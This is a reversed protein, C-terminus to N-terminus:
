NRGPPRLYVVERKHILSDTIWGALAGWAAGLVVRAVDAPLGCDGSPSCQADRVTAAAFVGYGAGAGMGILVGNRVPDRVKRDVRTVTGAPFTRRQGNVNVHLETGSLLVLRGRAEEGRNDTVHVADGPLMRRQLEEIDQTLLLLILSLTAFRVTM